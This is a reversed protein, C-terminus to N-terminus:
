PQETGPRVRNSGSGDRPVPGVALRTTMTAKSGPGHAGPAGHYAAPSGGPARRECEARGARPQPPPSLPIQVRPATVWVCAKWAHEKLWESMEGTTRGASVPIARNYLCVSGIQMPPQPPPSPPIQVGPATAWVRTKSVLENLRESVEGQPTPERDFVWVPNKLTGAFGLELELGM